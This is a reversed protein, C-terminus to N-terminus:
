TGAHAADGPAPLVDLPEIGLKDVLDYDTDIRRAANAAFLAAACGLVLGAALSMAITTVRGAGIETVGGEPELLTVQNSTD